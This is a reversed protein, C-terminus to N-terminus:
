GLRLRAHAIRGLGEAARRPRLRLTDVRDPAGPAEVGHQEDLPRQRPRGVDRLDGGQPRRRGIGAGPDHRDHRDDIACQGVAQRADDVTAPHPRVVELADVM